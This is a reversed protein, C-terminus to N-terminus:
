PAKVEFTAGLSRGWVSPDYMSEALIPPVQMKGQNTARIDYVFERVTSEVTGFLLVRDERVDAFDASFNGGKSIFSAMGASVGDGGGEGEDGEPPEASDGPDGQDDPGKAGPRNDEGAGDEGDGNAEPKPHEVVGEFGAPM